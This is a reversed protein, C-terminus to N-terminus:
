QSVILQLLDNQYQLGELKITENLILSPAQTINYYDILYNILYEDKFDIDLNIAVVQKHTEMLEQIIFGQRESIQDDAKFFFIIPLYGGDCKENLELIQSYYNLELLFFNRKLLDFEDKKFLTLAGFSTMERGIDRMDTSLNILKNNIDFCFDTDFTNLFEKELILFDSNMVHNNFNDDLVNLRIFDLGHAAVLGLAFISITLFLSTILVRINDSGSTM